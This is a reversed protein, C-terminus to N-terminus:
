RVKWMHDPGAGVVSRHLLEEIQQLLVDEVAPPPAGAGFEAERDDDPDLVGVVATSAL